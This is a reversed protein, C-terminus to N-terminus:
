LYLCPSFCTKESSMKDRQWFAKEGFSSLPPNLHQITKELLQLQSVKSGMTRCTTRALKPLTSPVQMPVPLEYSKMGLPLYSSGRWLHSGRRSSGSASHGLGSSAGLRPLLEVLIRYINPSALFTVPHNNLSRMTAQHLHKSTTTGKPETFFMHKPFSFIRLTISLVLLLTQDRISRYNYM